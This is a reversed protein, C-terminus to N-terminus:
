VFFKDKAKGILKEEILTIIFFLPSFHILSITVLNPLSFVM